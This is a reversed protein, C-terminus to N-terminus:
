FHSRFAHILNKVESEDNSKRLFTNAGAAYLGEIEKTSEFGSHVVVLVRRMPAQCAIWKLVEYGSMDPLDLDLFIAGPLGAENKEGFPQTAALYKVAEGGSRAMAIPQHVGVKRLAHELLRRDDANDEVILIPKKPEM